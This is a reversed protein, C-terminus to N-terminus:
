FLYKKNKEELKNKSFKDECYKTFNQAKHILIHSVKEQNLFAYLVRKQPFNFKKACSIKLM